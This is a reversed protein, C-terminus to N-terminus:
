LLNLWVSYPRGSGAGAIALVPVSARKGFEASM